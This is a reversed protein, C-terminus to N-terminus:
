KNTDMDQKLFDIFIDMSKKTLCIIELEKYKFNQALQRVKQKIAANDIAEWEDNIFIVSQLIINMDDTACYNESEFEQSLQNLQRIIDESSEVDRHAAHNYANRWPNNKGQLMNTLGNYAEQIKDRHKEAEPKGYGKGSKSEAVWIVNSKSYVGDFGKKMSNEELNQFLFNQKYGEHHLYLHMFFEAIIGMKKNEDKGDLSKLISKKVATVDIDKNGEIINKIKDNILYAIHSDIDRLEWIHIKWKESDQLLEVIYSLPNNM